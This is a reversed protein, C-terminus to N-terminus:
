EHGAVEQWAVTLSFLEVDESTEVTVDAMGLLPQGSGAPVVEVWYAVDTESQRWQGDYGIRWIEEECRGGHAKVARAYDGGSGKLVEAANQAAQVAHAEAECRLSLQRAFVFVQMCLAAALAFVLLMVMQEMLALPAKNKM